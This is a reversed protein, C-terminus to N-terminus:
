VESEFSTLLGRKKLRDRKQNSLNLKPGKGTVLMGEEELGVGANLLRERIGAHSLTDWCQVGVWRM